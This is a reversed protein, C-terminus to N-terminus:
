AIKEVYTKEIWCYKWSSSTSRPLGTFNIYLPAKKTTFTIDLDYYQTYSSGKITANSSNIVSITWIQQSTGDAFHVTFKPNEWRNKASQIAIRSYLRFTGAGKNPFNDSNKNVSNNYQTNGVFSDTTWIMGKYKYMLMKESYLALM